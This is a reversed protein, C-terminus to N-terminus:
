NLGLEAEIEKRIVDLLATSAKLVSAKDLKLDGYKGFSESALVKGNSGVLTYTGRAKNVTVGNETEPEVTVSKIGISEIFVAM